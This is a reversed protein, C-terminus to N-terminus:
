TPTGPAPSVTAPDSPPNEPHPQNAAFRQNSWAKWPRVTILLSAGVALGLGVAPWRWRSKQKPASEEVEKWLGSIAAGAKNVQRRFKKDQIIEEAQKGRARQYAARVAQAAQRASAQADRNSLLQQAYPVVAAARDTMAM